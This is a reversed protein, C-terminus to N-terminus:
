RRQAENFALLAARDQPLPHLTYHLRFAANAQRLREQPSLRLAFELEAPEITIVRDVTGAM